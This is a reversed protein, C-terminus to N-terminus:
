FGFSNVAITLFISKLSDTFETDTASKILTHQQLDVASLRKEPDTELCGKCFAYAEESMKMEQLNICDITEGCVAKILAHLKSEFPVRRFYMELLVIGFSWIDVKTTHPQRRIIEPALWYSTGVTQLRPGDYLEACLGFDIIKISGNNSFMINNSKLDRHVFNRSHMYALANLVQQSIYFIFSEPIARANLVQALTGCRYIGHCDM